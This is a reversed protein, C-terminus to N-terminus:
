KKNLAWHYQVHRRIILCVPPADILMVVAGPDAPMTYVNVSPLLRTGSYNKLEVQALSDCTVPATTIREAQVSCRGQNDPVAAVSSIAVAGNFTAAIMGFFPASNPTDHDWDVLVDHAASGNVAQSSLRDVAEQCQHVGITKAAASLLNQAYLSTMPFVMCTALASSRLWLVAHSKVVEM